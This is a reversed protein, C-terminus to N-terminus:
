KKDISDYILLTRYFSANLNKAEELKQTLSGPYITPCLAEGGQRYYKRVCQVGEIRRYHEVHYSKYRYNNWFMAMLFIWLGVIVATQLRQKHEFLYGWALMSFPILVMGFEAYRPSKAQVTGLPSRGSAVSAFVVLIAITTAFVAWQAERLNGKRKVVLAGVPAIVIVLCVVGAVQSVRDVGFGFSVLNLYYDWFERNVLLSLQSNITPKQYGVFWFMIAAVTVAIVTALQSLERRRLRGAPSQYARLAKFLCFVLLLTASSVVGSALSYISLVSALCGVILASWKQSSHFLFYAAILFFLLWFHVQSQYGMVHNQFSITSLLFIMFSVQLWSPIQPAAKRVFWGIWILLLGYLVFNLVQHVVLDWGNLRYLLWVLLKTTVLRHENHQAFLWSLSFGAPLQDPRFSEWEDWYPIDVSYRCVFYFQFLYLGICIALILQSRRNRVM